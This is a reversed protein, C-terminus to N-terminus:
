PAMKQPKASHGRWFRLVISVTLVQMVVILIVCAAWGGVTWAFGPVVAGVTGGLYYFGVYLGAASSRVGTAVVGVYSSAASQSLFVGISCFMLGILVATLMPLLTLLIGLCSVGVATIVAKRQGVRDIWRGLKATVVAGPLNVLFLLGLAISDLHFPAAALYFTIYTFASIFVFLTNFGVAYVALLRPNQLHQAMTRLSTLPNQQRLFHQSRPLWWWTLFGGVVLLSGLAVFAWHWNLHVALFGALVRGSVSGSVNGSVYAAMASGVQNRSWEESIYALAVTFIGPIFLGQAFRWEVLTQLDSATAAFFMPMSLAFIAPVIVCKRGWSDAFLGILPAVLTVAITTASVTLSVQATTAHFVQRFTPLLPQTVYMVLFPCFGTLWVALLRTDIFNGINFAPRNMDIEQLCCIM